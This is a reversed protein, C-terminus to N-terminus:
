RGHAPWASPGRSHAAGPRIEDRLAELYRRRELETEGQAYLEDPPLIPVPAPRLWACGGSTLLLGALLVRTLAAFPDRMFFHGM